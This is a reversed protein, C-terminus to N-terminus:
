DKNINSLDLDPIQTVDIEDEMDDVPIEIIERYLLIFQKNISLNKHYHGFFWFTYKLKRAVQDFFITLNDQPYSEDAIYKAVSAPACHTM